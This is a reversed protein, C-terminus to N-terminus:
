GRETGRHKACKDSFFGATTADSYAHSTAKVCEKCPRKQKPIWIAYLGCRECKIQRHTRSMRKAWAHWQLYGEPCETHKAHAPCEDRLIM